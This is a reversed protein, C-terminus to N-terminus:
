MCTLSQFSVRRCRLCMTSHELALQRVLQVKLCDFVQTGRVGHIIYVITISVEVSDIGAQLAVTKMFTEGMNIVKYMHSCCSPIPIPISKFAWKCELMGVHMHVSLCVYTRVYNIHLTDAHLLFSCCHTFGVLLDDPQYLPGEPSGPTDKIMYWWFSEEVIHM